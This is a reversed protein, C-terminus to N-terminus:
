KYLLSKNGRARGPPRAGPDASKEAIALAIENWLMQEGSSQEVIGLMHAADIAHFDFRLASALEFAELFVARSQQPQGSSNIARGRELLYRVRELKM